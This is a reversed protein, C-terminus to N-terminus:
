SKPFAKMLFGALHCVGSVSERSEKKVVTAAVGTMSMVLAKFCTSYQHCSALAFQVCGTQAMQGLVNLM